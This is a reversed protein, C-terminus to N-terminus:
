DDDGYYAYDSRSPFASKTLVVGLVETSQSIQAICDDVEGLVSQGEAAVVLACDAKGIFALTDDASFFPPLDYLMVDPDLAHDAALLAQACVGSQLLEASDRQGRGAIGIALNDRYRLLCEAPQAHGTLMEAITRKPRVGLMNAMEPKLLDLELLLTRGERRRAFSLALNLATTTKGCAPRPSTIAISRWGRQHMRRLIRTRLIDFPASRVGKDRTVIRSRALARESLTIKELAAWVAAAEPSLEQAKRSQVLARELGGLVARM